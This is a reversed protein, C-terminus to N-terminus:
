TIFSFSFSSDTVEIVYFNLCKSYFIPSLINHFFIYVYIFLLHCIDKKYTLNNNGIGQVKETIPDCMIWKAMHSPLAELYFLHLLCGLGVSVLIPWRDQKPWHFTLLYLLFLPKLYAQMTPNPRKHKQWRDQTYSHVSGWILCTCCVQIWVLMFCLKAQWDAPGYLLFPHKYNLGSPKRQNNLVYHHFYLWWYPVKM